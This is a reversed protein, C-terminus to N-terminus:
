HPIAPTVINQNSGKGMDSLGMSRLGNEFSHHLRGIGTHLGIERTEVVYQVRPGFRALHIGLCDVM